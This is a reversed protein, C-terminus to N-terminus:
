HKYGRKGTMPNVNGSHSWNNLRTSDARTRYHPAVYTGRHTTYGGVRISGASHGRALAPLPLVLFGFLLLALNRM